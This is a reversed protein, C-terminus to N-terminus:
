KMMRQLHKILIVGVNGINIRQLHKILIMGVNEINLQVKNM